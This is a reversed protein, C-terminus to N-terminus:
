RMLIQTGFLSEACVALTSFASGYVGALGDGDIVITSDVALPPNCSRVNLGDPATSRAILVFATRAQWLKWLDEGFLKALRTCPTMLDTGPVLKDGFKHQEAVAVLTGEEPGGQVGVVCRFFMIGDIGPFTSSKPRWIFRLLEDQSVDELLQPITSFFKVGERAISADVYATHLWPAPGTLRECAPYLMAVTQARYPPPDGRLVSSEYRTLLARARSTAVAFWLLVSEWAIPANGNLLSRRVYLCADFLGADAGRCDNTPNVVDAFPIPTSVAGGGDVSPGDSLKLTSSPMVAKAAVVDQMDLTLRQELAAFFFSLIVTPGEPSRQVLAAKGFVTDFSLDDAAFGTTPVDFGLLGAALVLPYSALIRVSEAAVSLAEPKLAALLKDLFNDGDRARDVAGYLTQLARPHGLSVLVMHKAVTEVPLVTRQGVASTAQLRVGSDNFRRVLEEELPQAPLLPITVAEIVTSGSGTKFGGQRQMFRNTFSTMVPRILLEECWDCCAKRVAEATRLASDEPLVIVDAAKNSTDADVQDARVPTAAAVKTDVTVAEIQEASTKVLEASAMPAWAPQKGEVIKPEIANPTMRVTFVTAKVGPRQTAAADNLEQLDKNLSEVDEKSLGELSLRALEDVLMVASMQASSMSPQLRARVLGTACTKVEEFSLEKRKLLQLVDKQFDSFLLNGVTYSETYIIRVLVPLLPNIAALVHDSGSAKTRGNLSLSYVPLGKWWARVEDSLESLLIEYKPLTSLLLLLLLLTKGRGPSGAIYGTARTETRTKFLGNILEATLNRGFIRRLLGSEFAPSPEIFHRLRLIIQESSLKSLPSPGPRAGAVRLRMQLLHELMAKVAAKQKVETARLDQEKKREETVAKRLIAKQEMHFMKDEQLDLKEENALSTVKLDNLVQKVSSSADCLDNSAKDLAAQAAARDVVTQRLEEEM